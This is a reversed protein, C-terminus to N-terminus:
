KGLVGRYLSTMTISANESWTLPRAVRELATIDVRKRASKASSERKNRRNTKISSISSFPVKSQLKPFKPVSKPLISKVGGGVSLALSLINNLNAILLITVAIPAAAKLAPSLQKRLGRLRYRLKSLLNSLSKKVSDGFPKIPEPRMWSKPMGTSPRALSREIVVAAIQPEMVDVEETLYGLQDELVRRMRQTIM